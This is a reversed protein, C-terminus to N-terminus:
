PIKWGPSFTLDGPIDVSAIVWPAHLPVKGCHLALAFACGGPDAGVLAGDRVSLTAREFTASVAYTFKLDPLPTEGIKVKLTPTAAFSLEHKGLQVLSIDPSPPRNAARYARVNEIATWAQALQECLDIKDLASRLGQLAQREVFPLGLAPGSKHLHERVAGGLNELNTPLLDRLTADTTLNM